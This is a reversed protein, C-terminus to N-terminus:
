AHSLDPGRNQPPLHPEAGELFYIKQHSKTNYHVFFFRSDALELIIKFGSHMPEIRSQKVETESFLLEAQERTLEKMINEYGM